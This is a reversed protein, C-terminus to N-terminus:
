EGEWDQFEDEIELGQRWVTLPMAWDSNYKVIVSYIMDLKKKILAM